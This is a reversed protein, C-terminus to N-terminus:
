RCPPAEPAPADTRVVNRIEPICRGRRAVHLYETADHRARMRNPAEVDVFSGDNFHVRYSHTNDTNM